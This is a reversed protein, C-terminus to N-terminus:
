SDTTVLVGQAAGVVPWASQHIDPAAGLAPHVPLNHRHYDAVLQEAERARTALNAILALTLWWLTTSFYYSYIIDTFNAIIFHNLLVLWLMVLWSRGWFGERPLVKWVRISRYLWWGAPLLYLFLGVLGMEAAILLYTHHSTQENRVPIDFVRSRFQEDYLEHNGYGWGFLPKQEILRISAVNGVLRANATRETTLREAAFMVEDAFITSGLVALLLTLVITVRGIVRPYLFGLGTIVALGGLWSGRSFSFFTALIVMAFLAVMGTIIRRSGSQLGYQLLLLVLFFLTNTYVGPIGLSGTTRAGVRGLWASPLLGPITWSLLGIILQIVMAVLAVAVLRRLDAPEPGLARILGYMFFPVIIRDYYHVLMREPQESMFLINVISLLLYLLMSAEALSPRLPRGARLRVSRALLLLALAGPIMARHLIWQLQRTGAPTQVVLPFILLWTAVAAIPHRLFLIAAPVALVLPVVFLWQERAVVIAALAAMGLGLGFALGDTLLAELRSPGPQRHKAFPNLIRDVLGTRVDDM